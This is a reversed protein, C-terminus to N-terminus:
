VDREDRREAPFFRRDYAELAQFDLHEAAILGSAIAGGRRATGAFRINRHALKFGSKRYNEQQALVGDLGINRGDLAAMARQWIAWGFGRGRFAKEVIYLGVFGFSSEYKVASLSAIPRGDLKGILFGTPDAAYFASADHIGPNWGEQRAWELTTELDALSMVSISFRSNDEVDM